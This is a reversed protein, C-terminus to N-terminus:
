TPYFTDPDAANFSESICAVVTAGGASTFTHRTGPGVRVVEPVDGSLSLEVRAGKGRDEELVLTAGGQVCAFWEEKRQHWHGGRSRGPLITFCYVQAGAPTDRVLEVLAGREDEKRERRIVDYGGRNGRRMDPTAERTVDRTSHRTREM